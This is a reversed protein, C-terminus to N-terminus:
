EVKLERAKLKVPAAAPAATEAPKVDEKKAIPVPTGFEPKKV